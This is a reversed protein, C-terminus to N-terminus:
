TGPPPSAHSSIAHEGRDKHRLSQAGGDALPGQVKPMENLLNELPEEAM